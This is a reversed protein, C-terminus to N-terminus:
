SDRPTRQHSASEEHSMIQYSFFLMFPPNIIIFTHLQLVTGSNKIWPLNCGLREEAVKDLCDKIPEAKDDCEFSDSSLRTVRKRLIEVTQLREPNPSTVVYTTSGLLRFVPDM